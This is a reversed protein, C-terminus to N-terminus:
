GGDACGLMNASSGFCRSDSSSVHVLKDREGKLLNQVPIGTAKAVVRSIDNSTVRDHLGLIGDGEAEENDKRESDKPLEKLLNPITDFRLKSATDYQGQRQAVELRHKAEELRHKIDKINQM